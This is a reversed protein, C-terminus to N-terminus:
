KRGGDVKCERMIAEALMLKKQLAANNSALINYEEQKRSMEMELLTVQDLADEYKVKYSKVKRKAIDVKIYGLRRLLKNVVKSM